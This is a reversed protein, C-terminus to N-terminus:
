TSSRLGPLVARGAESPFADLPRDAQLRGKDLVIRRHRYRELLGPDHTAVLVTRGADAGDGALLLDLVARGTEEDLNGTPEDALLLSPSKAWARAVAVRQQEGGSLEHPLRGAHSALGVRALADTAHRRKARRQLGLPALGLEVNELATLGPLLNFFQFVFGVEERRYRGLERRSLPGLERGGM